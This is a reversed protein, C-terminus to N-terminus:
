LGTLGLHVTGNKALMKDLKHSDGCSHASIVATADILIKCFYTVLLELSFKEHSMGISPNKDEELIQLHLRGNFTDNAKKVLDSIM